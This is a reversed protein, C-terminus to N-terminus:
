AIEVSVSSTPQLPHGHQVRPQACLFAILDGVTEVKDFYPNTRCGDFSRGARGAIEIVVDELDDPDMRLDNVLRDSPRLPFTEHLDSLHHQLQEFTARVVWTDLERIPLARIFSCISEDRRSGALAALRRRERRDYVVTAAVFAGGAAMTPMPWRWVLFAYGAVLCALVAYATVRQWNTEQPAWQPMFRSPRVM